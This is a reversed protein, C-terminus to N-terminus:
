KRELIMGDIIWQNYQLAVILYMFVLLEFDQVFPLSLYGLGMILLVSFIMAMNKNGTKTCLKRNDWVAVLYSSFYIIAGLIGTEYAMLFYSSETLHPKKLFLMARPGNNGLGFGLPHHFIKVISEVWSNLHGLLSTDKGTITNGLLKVAAMVVGTHLILLDAVVVILAGGATYIAVKKRKSKDWKVFLAVHVLLAAGCAIWSTRSFTLLLTLTIIGESIYTYYKNIEMPKNLYVMIVLVISLYMGCTNPAAFTSVVRQMFGGGLIYFENKLRLTHNVRQTRYGLSVLFSDGLVQAQIIGWICLIITSAMVMCIARRIDKKTIDTYKVVPVLLMPMFYIRSIYLAQYKSDSICVFLFIVAMFLLLTKEYLSIKLKKKGMGIQICTILFLISIVAEKWYRLFWFDSLVVSIIQHHYPLLLVLLMLLFKKIKDM